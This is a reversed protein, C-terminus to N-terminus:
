VVELDELANRDALKRSRRHGRSRVTPLHRVRSGGATSSRGLAAVRMVRGGIPSSHHTERVTGHGRQPRPKRTVRVTSACSMNQGDKASVGILAFPWTVDILRWRGEVQGLRFRPKAVDARFAREDPSMM